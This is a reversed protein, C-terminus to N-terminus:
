GPETTETTPETTSTTPRPTPPTLPEAACALAAETVVDPVTDPDDRLNRDLREFEAASLEETIRDFACRCVDEELPAEGPACTELFM